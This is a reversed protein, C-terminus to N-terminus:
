AEVPGGEFNEIQLISVSQILLMAGNMGCLINQKGSSGPRMLMEAAYIRRAAYARQWAGQGRSCIKM